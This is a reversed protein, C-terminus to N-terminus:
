FVTYEFPSEQEQGEREQIKQVAEMVHQQILPRTEAMYDGFKDM